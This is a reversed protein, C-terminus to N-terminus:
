AKEFIHLTHSLSLSLSLSLYPHIPILGLAKCMSPLCKAVDGARRKELCPRVIYSLSAKFELNEQRQKKLAPIVPMQWWAQSGIQTKDTLLYHIM